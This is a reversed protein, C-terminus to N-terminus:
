VEQAARPALVRDALEPANSEHRPSEHWGPFRRFLLAVVPAAPIGCRTGSVREFGGVHPILAIVPVETVVVPGGPAAFPM